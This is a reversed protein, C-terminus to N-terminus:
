GYIPSVFTASPIVTPPTRHKSLYFRTTTGQNIYCLANDLACNPTGAPTRILRFMPRASSRSLISNQNFVSPPKASSAELADLPGVRQILTEVTAIKREAVGTHYFAVLGVRRCVCGTKRIYRIPHRFLHESKDDSHGGTCFYWFPSCTM